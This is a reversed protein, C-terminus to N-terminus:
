VGTGDFPPIFSEVATEGEQFFANEVGIELAYGLLAEYEADSLRGALEPFGEPLSSTPTYQNMISIYIKEGFTEHLWSLVARSDEGQGPLALHRVIVGRKMLFSADDDSEANNVQRATWERGAGDTFVPPGVQRVMERIAASAVQFYDPARSYRASLKPSRYKLDPLYIDVLGEMGQLTEVTDYSSTNYVVPIRLGARRGLRIASAIQLAFQTPTVLNINQAGQEQLELFIEALREISIEKGANGLAIERNQCYVCRLGCGCFFIAGSGSTGSICPEEWFHLAARAVKLTETQGCYGTQGSERRALCMRGCLRCGCAERGWPRVQAM